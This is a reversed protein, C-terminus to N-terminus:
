RNYIDGPCPIVGDGDIRNLIYKQQDGWRISDAGVLSYGVTPEVVEEEVEVPVTQSISPNDVLSVTLYGIGEALGYIEKGNIEFFSEPM